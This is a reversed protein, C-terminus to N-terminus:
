HALRVSKLMRESYEAGHPNASDYTAQVQYLTRGDLIMLGEVHIVGTKGDFSRDATISLRRAPKGSVEAASATHKVNTVGELAAVSGAAGAVGGDLNLEIDPKYTMRIVDVEFGTADFKFSEGTELMKKLEGFDMPAAKFEGPSDLSVQTVTRTQWDKLVAPARVSEFGWHMLYASILASIAGVATLFLLRKFRNM